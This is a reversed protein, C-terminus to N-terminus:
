SYNEKFVKRRENRPQTTKVDKKKKRRIEEMKEDYLQAQSKQVPEDAPAVTTAQRTEKGAFSDWSNSVAAVPTAISSKMQQTRSAFYMIDLERRKIANLVRDQRTTLQQTNLNMDKLGQKAQNIDVVLQDRHEHLIQLRGSIEAHRRKVANLDDNTKSIQQDLRGLEAKHNAIVGELTSQSKSLKAHEEQLGEKLRTNRRIESAVNAVEKNLNSLDSRLEEHHASKDALTRERDRLSTIKVNVELRRNAINGKVNKISTRHQEIKSSVTTMAREATQRSDKARVSESQLQIEMDSLERITKNALNV